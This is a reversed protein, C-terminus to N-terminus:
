MKDSEVGHIYSDSVSTRTNQGSPYRYLVGHIIHYGRSTFVHEAIKKNEKESEFASMIKECFPDALQLDRFEKATLPKEDLMLHHVLVVSMVTGPPRSLLDALVNLKGPIYVIDFNYHQVSLAWRALHGSPTNLSM